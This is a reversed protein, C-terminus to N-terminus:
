NGFGGVVRQLARARPLLFWLVVFLAFMAAGLLSVLRERTIVRAVLYFDLSISIALAAM